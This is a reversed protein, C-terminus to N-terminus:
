NLEYIEGTCNYKSCELLVNTYLIETKCIGKIDLMLESPCETITRKCMRKGEVLEFYQPCKLNEREICECNDILWDIDPVQSEIINSTLGKRVFIVLILVVILIVITLIVKKIDKKM